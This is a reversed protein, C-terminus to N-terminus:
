KTAQSMTLPASAAAATAAIGRRRRVAGNGCDHLLADRNLSSAAHPHSHDGTIEAFPIYGVVPASTRWLRAAVSGLVAPRKYNDICSPRQQQQQQQRVVAPPVYLPVATFNWM